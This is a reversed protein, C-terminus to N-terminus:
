KKEPFVYNYIGGFFNSVSPGNTAVKNDKIEKLQKKVSNAFEQNISSTKGINSTPLHYYYKHKGNMYEAGSDTAFDSAGYTTTDFITSDGDLGLAYLYSGDNSNNNKGDKTKIATKKDDTYYFDPLFQPVPDGSKPLKVRYSIETTGKQNTGDRSGWIRFIRTLGAINPQTKDIPIQKEIIDGDSNKINGYYNLTPDGDPCNCDKKDPNKNDSTDCGILEANADATINSLLEPNEAGKFIYKTTKIDPNASNTTSTDITWFRTNTYDNAIIPNNVYKATGDKIKDLCCCKPIIGMFTDVNKGKETLLAAAQQGGKTKDSSDPKCEPGDYGPCACKDCKKVIDCFLEIQNKMSQKFDVINNTYDDRDEKTNLPEINRDNYNVLVDRTLTYFKELFVPGTIQFTNEFGGVGLAPAGTWRFVDISTFYAGIILGIIVVLIVWQFIPHGLTSSYIKDNKIMNKIEETIEAGGKMVQPPNPIHIYM